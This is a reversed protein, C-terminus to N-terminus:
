NPSHHVESNFERGIELSGYKLFVVITKINLIDQVAASNDM